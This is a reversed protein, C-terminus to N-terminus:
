KIMRKIVFEYLLSASVLIGLVWYLKEVWSKNPPAIQKTNNTTHTIPKNFDKFSDQVMDGQVITQNHIVTQSSEKARKEKNELELIFRQGKTNLWLCTKENLTINTEGLHKSVDVELYGNNCYEQILPFLENLYPRPEPLLKHLQVISLSGNAGFLNLIVLQETENIM